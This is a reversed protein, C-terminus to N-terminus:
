ICLADLCTLLVVFWHNQLLGLDETGSIQETILKNESIKPYVTLQDFDSAM